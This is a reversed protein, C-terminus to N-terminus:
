TEFKKQCRFIKLIFFCPVVFRETSFNIDWLISFCRLPFRRHKLFFTNDFCKISLHPSSSYERNWDFIKQRVSGFIQQFINRHKLFIRTDFFTVSLVTSPYWSKGYFSNQRKTEGYRFMEFSFGETNWFFDPKSFRVCLFPIDSNEAILNQGVNDLLKTPSCMQTESFKPYRFIRHM